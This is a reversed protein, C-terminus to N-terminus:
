IWIKFEPREMNIIGSFKKKWITFFKYRSKLKMFDQVVEESEGKRHRRVVSSLEHRCGKLWLLLLPKSPDCYWNFGTKFWWGDLLLLCCFFDKRWLVHSSQKLPEGSTSHSGHSAARQETGQDQRCVGSIFVTIHLCDSKVCASSAM